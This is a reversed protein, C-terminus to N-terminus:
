RGGVLWVFLQQLYHVPGVGLLILVLYKASKGLSVAALFTAVRMRLMGAVIGAFDFLPLPLAALLTLGVVGYRDTLRQLQEFQARRRAPVLASGSTGALYGSLEGFASGIGAVVALVLPDLTTSMAIVVAIGPAPLIITASAILSILFAGVYGWHGLREIWIPNVAIWLSGVLIALVALAGLTWHLRVINPALEPTFQVASVPQAPCEEQMAPMRQRLLHCGDWIAAVMM